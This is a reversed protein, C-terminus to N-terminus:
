PENVYIMDGEIRVSTVRVTTGLLRRSKREPHAPSLQVWKVGSLTWLEELIRQTTQPYEESSPVTIFDEVNPIAGELAFKVSGGGGYVVVTLM